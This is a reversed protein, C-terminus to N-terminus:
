GSFFYQALKCIKSSVSATTISRQMSEWIKRSVLEFGKNDLIKKISEFNLKILHLANIFANLPTRFEHSISSFMIHLWKNTAREKELKKINSINIFVHMFANQHSEWEAKITKVTFYKWNKFSDENNVNKIDVLELNLRM